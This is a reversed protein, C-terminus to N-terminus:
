KDTGFMADDLNGFEIRRSNTTGLKRVIAATRDIKVMRAHHWGEDYFRLIGGVPFRERLRERTRELEKELRLKEEKKM